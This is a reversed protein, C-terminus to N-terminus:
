PNWSRQQDGLVGAAHKQLWDLTLPDAFERIGHTEALQQTYDSLLYIRHNRQGEYQTVVPIVGADQVSLLKGERDFELTMDLLGGLMTAWKRQNSVFNGLSYACYM